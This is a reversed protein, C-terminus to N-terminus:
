VLPPPTGAGVSEALHSKATMSDVLDYNHVYEQERKRM